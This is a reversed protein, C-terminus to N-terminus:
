FKETPDEFKLRFEKAIGAGPEPSPLVVRVEDGYRLTAERELPLGNHLVTPAPAASPAGGAAAAPLPAISMGGRAGKIVAPANAVGPLPYADAAFNAGDGGLKIGQGGKVQFEKPGGPGGTIRLPAPKGGGLAFLLGAIAAAGLALGIILPWPPGKAADANGPASLPRPTSATRPGDEAAPSPAAQPLREVPRGSQDIQVGIGFARVRESRSMKALLREYDRNEPTDPYKELRGGPTYYRLYDAYAPDDKKPEDNFSDTLLVVAGPKPEESELIKLAEHHPRRINTGAGEGPASPVQQILERKQANNELRQDFVKTYDAGFTYLVVRDGPSTGERLITVAATRARRLLEGRMSGSVDFVFIVTKDKQSKMERVVPAAEGMEADSPGSLAASGGEDPDQARAMGPPLLLAASLLALLAAAALLFRYM